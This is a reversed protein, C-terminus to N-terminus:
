TRAREVDGARVRGLGLEVARSVTEVRILALATITESGAGFAETFLDAEVGHPNIDGIHLVNWVLERNADTLALFETKVIANLAQSATLTAVNRERYVTNLDAAAAEIGMGAYGRTLPDVTLEAKLKDILTDAM